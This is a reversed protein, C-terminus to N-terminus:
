MCSGECSIRSGERSLDSYHLSKITPSVERDYDGYRWGAYQIMGAGKLLLRSPVRM